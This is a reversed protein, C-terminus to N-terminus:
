FSCCILLCKQHSCTRCLTSFWCEQPKKVIRVQGSTAPSPRKPGLFYWFDCCYSWQFFSYNTVLHNTIAWKPYTQLSDVTMPTQQLDSLAAIKHFSFGMSCWHEQSSCSLAKEKLGELFWLLGTGCLILVHARARPWVQWSLVFSRFSLSAARGMIEASINPKPSHQLLSTEIGLVCLVNEPEHYSSSSSPFYGWPRQPVLFFPIFM